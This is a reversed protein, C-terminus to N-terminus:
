EPQSQSEQRTRFTHAIVEMQRIFDLKSYRPGPSFVMGDISYLRRSAPDYFTYNVFPGAMTPVPPGDPVPRLMVWVGRSVFAQERGLFPRRQVELPLRTDVQVYGGSTGTINAATLSDRLGVVYASDLRAPDFDDIYYVFLSRWTDTLVRRLWVLNTTDRAIFYDHQANVAFGHKDMIRAEIEPQRGRRFMDDEMRKRTAESFLYRIAAGREQILNVLGSDTPATVFVVQQQRRWENERNVIAGRDQERLQQQADASFYAQIMRAEVTSTDSLPAAILINKYQKIEELRSQSTITAPRADFGPEPRPLTRIPAEIEARLAEGLPGNWSVSDVVVLVHGEQGIAAPRYDADGCAALCLCLILCLRPM